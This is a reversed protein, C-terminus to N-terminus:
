AAHLKPTSIFEVHERLPSQDPSTSCCKNCRCGDPRIFENFYEEGYDITFQEGAEIPQTAYIYVHGDDIEAECNPECSHNIYRATNYRPSGDITWHEDIEFLYRTTLENAEATTLRIGVYEAIREGANIAQTAFLGMGLGKGASKIKVRSDSMRLFYVM